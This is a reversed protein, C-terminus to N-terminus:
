VAKEIAKLAVRLKDERIVKGTFSAVSARLKIEGLLHAKQEPSMRNITRTIQNKTM